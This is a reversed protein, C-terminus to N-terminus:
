SFGLHMMAVRFREDADAERRVEPLRSVKRMAAGAATVSATKSLFNRRSMENSDAM